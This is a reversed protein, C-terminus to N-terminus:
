SEIYSACFLLFEAAKSANKITIKLEFITSEYLAHADKALRQFFSKFKKLIYYSSLILLQKSWLKSLINM